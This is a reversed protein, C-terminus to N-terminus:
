CKRAFRKTYLRNTMWGLVFIIPIFLLWKLSLMNQGMADAWLLKDEPFSDIAIESAFVDLSPMINLQCVFVDGEKYLAIPTHSFMIYDNKVKWVYLPIRINTGRSNRTMIKKEFSTGLHNQLKQFLPKIKGVMKGSDQVLFNQSTLEVGICSYVLGEVKSDKIIIMLSDWFENGDIKYLIWGKEPIEDPSNGTFKYNEPPYKAQLNESSMGMIDRLPMVDINDAFVFPCFIFLSLALPRIKM